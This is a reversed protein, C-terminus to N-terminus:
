CQKIICGMINQDLGDSDDHWGHIYVQIDMKLSSGLYFPNMRYNFPMVFVINVNINLSYWPYIYTTIHQINFDFLDLLTVLTFVDWKEIPSM